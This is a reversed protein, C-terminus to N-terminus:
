PVAAAASVGERLREAEALAGEELQERSRVLLEVVARSDVGLRDRMFAAVDFAEAYRGQQYFRLAQELLYREQKARRMDSAITVADEGSRAQREGFLVQGTLALFLAVLALLTFRRM